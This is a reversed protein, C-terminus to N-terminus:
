LLSPFRKAARKYAKEITDLAILEGPQGPRATSERHEEQFRKFCEFWSFPRLKGQKGHPRRQKRYRSVCVFIDWDREYNGPHGKRRKVPLGEVRAVAYGCLAHRMWKPMPAAVDDGLCLLLADWFDESYGKEEYHREANALRMKNVRGIYSRFARGAPTKRWIAVAEEDSKFKRRGDLRNFWTVFNMKKAV